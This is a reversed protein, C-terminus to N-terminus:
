REMSRPAFADIGGALLLASLAVAFKAMVSIEKRDFFLAIHPAPLEVADTRIM